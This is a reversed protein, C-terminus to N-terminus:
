DSKRADNNKFLLACLMNIGWAQLWTISWGAAGPILAPVLWNLLWMTPLAFLLGLICCMVLYGLIYVITELFDSMNLYNKKKKEKEEMEELIEGLSTFDNHYNRM